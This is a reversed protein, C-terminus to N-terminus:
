RFDGVYENRQAPRRIGCRYPFLFHLFLVAGILGFPLLLLRGVAPRWNLALLCLPVALVLALAVIVSGRSVARLPTRVYSGYLRSGLDLVIAVEGLAIGALAAGAMAQQLNISM